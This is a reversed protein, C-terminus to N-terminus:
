GNLAFIVTDKRTAAGGPKMQAAPHKALEAPVANGTTTLMQKLDYFIESDDNMIFSTALGSSGARGTRGIRHTYDAITPPMDYNIVHTIGKVDIGRGAVDTAVLIDFRGAKFGEMALERQDQSKGSHIAASKYGERDLTKALSDANKKTNVFVMIPPPPGTNVLDLLHRRKEADSKVFEVRQEIRDVAKGVEGIAVYAPRRLYKRALREVAAPMTASYLHTNRFVGAALAEQRAAEEENESKLFGAPMSELVKIVQQEFGLDIMRDAEDLVVYNCQNLVIYRRDICDVLRGPTAIIIEAGHRLAFGQEEISVGGVIAVARLDMFQALKQVEGEIQTV